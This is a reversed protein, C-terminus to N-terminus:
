FSRFHKSPLKKWLFHDKEYFKQEAFTAFLGLLAALCKDNETWFLKPNYLNTFVFTKGWFTGRAGLTCNQSRQRVTKAALLGFTKEEFEFVTSFKFFLSESWFKKRSFTRQFTSNLKPFRATFNWVFNFSFWDFYLFSLFIEM